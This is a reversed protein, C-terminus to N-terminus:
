KKHIHLDPLKLKHFNHWFSPFEKRYNNNAQTIALFLDHSLQSLISGMKLHMFKSWERLYDQALNYSQDNDLCIKKIENIKNEWRNIFIKLNDLDTKSEKLEGNVLNYIDGNIQYDKM